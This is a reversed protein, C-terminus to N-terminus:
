IVTFRVCFISAFAQIYSVEDSVFLSQSGGLDKFNQRKENLYTLFFVSLLLTSVYVFHVLFSQSKNSYNGNLCLILITGRSGIHTDRDILYCSQFDPLSGFINLIELPTLPTDDLSDRRDSVRGLSLHFM